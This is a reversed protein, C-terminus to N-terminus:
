YWRVSLAYKACPPVGLLGTAKVKLVMPLPQPNEADNVYM